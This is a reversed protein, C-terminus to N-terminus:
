INVRHHVKFLRELKRGYLLQRRYFLDEKSYNQVLKRRVFDLGNM